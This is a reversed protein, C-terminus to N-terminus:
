NGLQRLRNGLKEVASDITQDAQDVADQLSNEISDRLLELGPLDAQLIATRLASLIVRLAEAVTAAEAETGIDRLMIDPLQVPASLGGAALTLQPNLIHLERIILQKSAGEAGPTPAPDGVGGPLNALLARVNDTTVRTEYTIVPQAIIVSEIKIVDSLLSNLDLNVSVYGLEFIYEANFGEPNQIRLDTISGNDNLPSLAVSAVSVNTDLVNSGVVEIGRRVISDLYFYSGAGIVILLVLLSLLVKRIM